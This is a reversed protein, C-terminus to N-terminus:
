WARRALAFEEVREGVMLGSKAGKQVIDRGGGHRVAAGRQRRPHDARAGGALMGGNSHGIVAPADFGRAALWRARGPQGRDRGLRDPVSRKPSAAAARASSTTGAGTSRSAPSASVPSAGAAPFADRRRLTMTNGHFLLAAGKARGEPEYYLGTSRSRVPPFPSRGGRAHLKSGPIVPLLLHAQRKEGFHLTVDGASYGPRGTASTTTSSPARLRADPEEYQHAIGGRRRPRLGQRTITLAVRWGKPVVICDALDRRRARFKGPELPQKEDHTHFPRYPLSRRPDLKRHSARV